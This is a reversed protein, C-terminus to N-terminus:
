NFWGTAEVIPVQEVYTHIVRDLSRVEFGDLARYRLNFLFQSKQIAEADTLGPLNEVSVVRGESIFYCEM